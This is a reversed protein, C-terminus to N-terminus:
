TAPGQNQDSAVDEKLTSRMTNFSVGFGVALAETTQGKEKLQQAVRVQEPTLEKSRGGKNPRKVNEHSTM